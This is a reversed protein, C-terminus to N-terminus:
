PNAFVGAGPTLVGNPDFRRKAAAFRQWIQDGYHRQWEDRSLPPAFPPYVKGGEDMCRKVLMRNASLMAKHDPTLEASARRQLRLTFAIPGAPIVHLPQKFRATIMPLVEIRWIGVSAEPDPLVNALFSRVSREPLTVALSPNPARKAKSATISATRRDLYEWYPVSRVAVAGKLQLRSTWGASPPDGPQGAYTGGILAFRWRGDAERMVEGAILPPAKETALSVQDSVLADSDDYSLTHIVLYTPARVLRLRARVIIGCQGLGALVMHFLEPNRAPSCTVLEGRGTVVELELVHDVQAGAACSTEGTGGVCLTGGVSLMMADPMIPPILSRKLTTSAVTGWLAGARADVQDSGHWDVANLRSSDIVIGGQAQAQGHVSHGQGRMAVKFRRQNAYKVIRVVDAISAAKQVAAPPHHIFHGWDDAAAQRAGPDYLVEGDLRPLESLSAPQTPAQGVEGLCLMSATLKLFGRRSTHAETHVGM